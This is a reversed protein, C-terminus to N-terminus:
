PEKKADIEVGEAKGAQGEGVSDIGISSLGNLVRGLGIPEWDHGLHLCRKLPCSFWPKM